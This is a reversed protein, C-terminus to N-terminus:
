LHGTQNFTVLRPGPWDLLTLSANAL